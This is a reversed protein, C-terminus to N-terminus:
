MNITCSHICSHLIFIRIMGMLGPHSRLRQRDFMISAGYFSLLPLTLFVSYAVAVTVNGSDIDIKKFIKQQVFKFISSGSKKITLDQFCIGNQKLVEAIQPKTLDQISHATIEINIEINNCELQEGVNLIKQEM